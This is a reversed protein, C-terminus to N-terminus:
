PTIAELRYNWGRARHGPYEFVRHRAASRYGPITVVQWHDTEKTETDAPRAGIEGEALQAVWLGFEYRQATEKKALAIAFTPECIVANGTLSKEPQPPAPITNGPSSVVGLALAIVISHLRMSVSDRFPSAM